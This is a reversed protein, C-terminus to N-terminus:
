IFDCRFEPTWLKAEDPWVSQAVRLPGLVLARNVDGLLWLDYLAELIARSKGGGMRCWVGCRPVDRVHRRMQEQM